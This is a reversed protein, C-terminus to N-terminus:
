GWPYLRGTRKGTGELINRGARRPADMEKPGKHFGCGQIRTEIKRLEEAQSLEGIIIEVSINHTKELNKARETLKEQRRGHLILNFGKQALRNAFAEGIGSTAGTILACPRDSLKNM